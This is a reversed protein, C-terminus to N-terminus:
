QPTFIVYWANEAEDWGFLLSEKPVAQKVSKVLKGDAYLSIALSPGPSSTVEIEFRRNVSRRDAKGLNLCWPPKNAAANVEYYLKRERFVRKLRTQMDASAATLSEPGDRKADTALIFQVQFCYTNPAAQAAQAPAVLSAFVASLGLLFFRRALATLSFHKM